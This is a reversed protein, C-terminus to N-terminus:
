RFSKISVVSGQSVGFPLTVQNANDRSFNRTEIGDITIELTQSLSITTPFITQNDTAAEIDEILPRKDIFTGFLVFVGSSNKAYVENTNEVMVISGHSTLDEYWEDTNTDVNHRS